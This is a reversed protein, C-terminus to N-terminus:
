FSHLRLVGIFAFTLNAIVTRRLIYKGVDFKSPEMYPVSLFVLGKLLEPYYNYVRSLLGSGRNRLDSCSTCRTEFLM